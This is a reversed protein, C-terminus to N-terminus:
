VAFYAAFIDSIKMNWFFWLLFNEFEVTLKWHILLHNFSLGLLELLDKSDRGNKYCHSKFLSLMKILTKLQDTHQLIVESPTSITGCFILKGRISEEVFSAIESFVEEEAKKRGILFAPFCVFFKESDKLWLIFAGDYKMTLCALGEDWVAIYNIKTIWSCRHISSVVHWSLTLIRSEERDQCDFSNQVSISLNIEIKLAKLCMKSLKKGKDYKVWPDARFSQSRCLRVNYVNCFRCYLYM